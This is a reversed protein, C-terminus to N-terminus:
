QVVAMPGAVNGMEMAASITGRPNEQLQAFRKNVSMRGGIWSVVLAVIGIVVGVVGLAPDLPLILGLSIGFSMALGAVTFIGFVVVMCCKNPLGLTNSDVYAALMFHRTDGTTTAMTVVEITGQEACSKFLREEIDFFDKSTRVTRGNAEAYQYEITMDHEIRASNQGSAVTRQRKSLVIGNLRTGGTRYKVRKEKELAAGRLLGSMSGCGVFTFFAGFASAGLLGLPGMESGGGGNDGCYEVKRECPTSENVCRVFTPSPGDERDPGEDENIARCGTQADCTTTGQCATCDDSSCAASATASFFFLLLVLLSFRLRAM